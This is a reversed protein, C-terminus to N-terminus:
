LKYHFFWSENFTLGLSLKYYNEQIYQGSPTLLKGLEFGVNLVTRQARLPLGAGLNLSITRFSGPDKLYQETYQFGARYRVAKFYKDTNVSPLFEMGLAVRTYNKLSDSSNMFLGSGFMKRQFDLGLTLREDYNYSLGVGLTRAMRFDYYNTTETTDASRKMLYFEGSTKLYESYSAGLTMFSKKSTKIDYQIGLDLGPYRLMLHELRVEDSTGSADYSTTVTNSIDGFNYNLNVGLSFGRFIKFGTGLFVTNLGGSGAYNVVYDDDELSNYGYENYSFGVKSTQYLGLVMGWNRKLAFKIGANEFYANPNSQTLEGQKFRSMQYSANFDFLMNMTDVDANGAPNLVNLLSPQHIGYGISGMSRAKGMAPNELNGYGYRSYVSNTNQASLNLVLIPFFLVAAFRKLM